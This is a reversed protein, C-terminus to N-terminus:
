GFYDSVSAPVQTDTADSAPRRPRAAFVLQAALLTRFCSAWPEKSQKAPQGCHGAGCRGDVSDFEPGAAVIRRALWRLDPPTRPLIVQLRLAHDISPFFRPLDLRLVWPFQRNLDTARRLARHTGKGTRCAYSQPAVWREFAPTSRAPRPCRSSSDRSGPFGTGTADESGTDIGAPGFVDRSDRLM